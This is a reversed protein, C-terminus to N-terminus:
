QSPLGMGLLKIADLIACVTDKVSPSEVGGLLVDRELHEGVLEFRM